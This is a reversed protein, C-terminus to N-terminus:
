RAAHRFPPSSPRSALNASGNSISQSSLSVQFRLLPETADLSIRRPLSSVDSVTTRAVAGPRGLRVSTRPRRRAREPPPTEGIRTGTPTPGRRRPGRARHLRPGPRRGQATGRRAVPARRGGHSWGSRAADGLNQAAQLGEHRHHRRRASRLVRRTGRGRGSAQRARSPEARCRRSAGARGARRAAGARDPSGRSSTGSPSTRLSALAALAPRGVDQQRVALRELVRERPELVGVRHGVAEAQRPLLVEVPEYDETSGDDPEVRDARVHPDPALCQSAYRSRGRRRPRRLDREESTM